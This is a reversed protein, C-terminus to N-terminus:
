LCLFFDQSQVIKKNIEEVENKTGVLQWPISITLYPEYSWSSNRTFINNYTNQSVEIYILANIQKIVGDPTIKYNDIM